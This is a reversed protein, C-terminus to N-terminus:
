LSSRSPSGELTSLSSQGGAIDLFVVDFGGGLILQGLLTGPKVPNGRDRDCTSCSPVYKSVDTAYGSWLFRQKVMERTAKDCHHGPEHLLRVVLSQCAKPVVIQETGRAPDVRLLIGERLKYTRCALGISPDGAAPVFTQVQENLARLEEDDRQGAAWNPLALAHSPGAQRSQWLTCIRPNVGEALGPEAGPEEASDMAHDHMRSLVDAITNESGKVYEVEIPYEPLTAIWGARRYASKPENSFLCKLAKHDTRLVFPRALLYVRFNECAMVMALCERDYTCYRQQTPTLKKSFYGVPREAGDEQAHLLVGGLAIGSADTQLIFPRHFDPHALVPASVLARKLEEVSRKATENLVFKEEKCADYLPAMLEGAHSIFDRYFNVFGLFSQVEKVNTPLAWEQVAQIKAPDPEIGSASIKHGLFLVEARFFQCKRPKMKLGTKHIREFVRELHAM